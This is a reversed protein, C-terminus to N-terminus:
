KWFQWWQKDFRSALEAETPEPKGDAVALVIAHLKQLVAKAQAPLESQMATPAMKKLTEFAQQRGPIEGRSAEKGLVAAIAEATDKALSLSHKAVLDSPEPLSKIENLLKQVTPSM